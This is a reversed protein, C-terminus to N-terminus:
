KIKKKWLVTYQPTQLTPTKKTKSWVSPQQRWTNIQPKGNDPNNKVGVWSGLYNPASQLKDERPSFPLNFM